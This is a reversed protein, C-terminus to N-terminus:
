GWDMMWEMTSVASEDTRPCTGGVAKLFLRGEPFGTTIIVSYEPLSTELRVMPEM